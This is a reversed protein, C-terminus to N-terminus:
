QALPSSPPLGGTAKLGKRGSLDQLVAVSALITAALLMAGLVDSSSHDGVMVRAMAMLVVIVLAAVSSAGRHRRGWRPVALLGGCLLAVRTVHGSPFSAATLFESVLAADPRPSGVIVKLALVLVEGTLLLVALRLAAGASTTRGVAVLSAAVVAAWIPFTGVVDLAAWLEGFLGTPVAARLLSDVRHIVSRDDFWDVALIALGTAALAIALAGPWLPRRSLSVDRVGAAARERRARRPNGAGQARPRDTRAFRASATWATIRDARPWALTAGRRGRPREPALWSLAHAYVWAIDHGHDLDGLGRADLLRRAMGTAALREPLRDATARDVAIRIPNSIRHM